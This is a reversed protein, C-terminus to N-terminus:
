EGGSLLSVVDISLKFVRNLTSLLIAWCGVVDCVCLSMCLYLVFIRPCLYLVCVCALVYLYLVYFYVLVYTCCLCSSMNYTCCMYLCSSMYTCCMSIYLSMPVAYVHPCIIPVACIYVRPCIPAACLCSSMAVSVLGSM